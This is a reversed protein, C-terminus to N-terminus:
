LWDGMIQEFSDASFDDCTVQLGDASSTFLNWTDIGVKEAAGELRHFDTSESCPRNQFAGSDNETQADDEKSDLRLLWNRLRIVRNKFDFFVDGAGNIDVTRTSLAELRSQLESLIQLFTAMQDPKSASVSYRCAVLLAFGMQVWQTNNFGVEENPPLQLYLNLISNASIVASVAM